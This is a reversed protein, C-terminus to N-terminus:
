RERENMKKEYAKCKTELLQNLEEFSYPKNREISCNGIENHRILCEFVVSKNEDNVPEDRHYFKIFYYKNDGNEFEEQLKKYSTRIKIYSEM